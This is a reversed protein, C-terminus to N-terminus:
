LEVVLRASRARSCCPLFQDNAAREEPTLYQDRHEPEGELVRTLCTGCVGQECSTYLPLGAAQMASAATCGAPVPVVQGTSAVVIEFSRDAGPVAAVAAAGFRERHLRADPWGASQAAADVADMFGAPGCVYLETGPPQAALLQRLDTATGEDDVHVGAPQLLGEALMEPLFAMRGRTRGAYHLSYARAERALQRAMALLPTVGIGGALLLAPADGGHLAFNNKPASTRIAQGPRLNEHVARSGGRSAPERLVGFVYRHREAPDNCLSYPRVIGGPLHLDVHAGASFAPLAQGALPELTLEVIDQAAPRLTAVRLELQGSM